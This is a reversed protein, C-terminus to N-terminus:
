RWGREYCKGIGWQVALGAAVALLATCLLGWLRSILDASGVAPLMLTGTLLGCLVPQCVTILAAERERGGFRRGARKDALAGWTGILGCLLICVVAVGQVPYSVRGGAGQGANATEAGERSAGNLIQRQFTFTSGDTCKEQLAEVAAQRLGEEGLEEKVAAFSEAGAIYGAFWDSSIEYFLREFLVENVVWTVTSDPSEYVTIAWSGDGQAIQNQLDEQLIYGCEAKGQMVNRKVEQPSECFFFRVLGASDSLLSRYATEETYVAAYVATQSQRELRVMFLSLLVTLLLCLWLSKQFLLRKALIVFLSQCKLPQLRSRASEATRTLGRGTRMNGCVAQGLGWNILWLLVTWASLVAATRFFAERNGTFLLTFTEKIYTSPFFLAIRGVAQPLLAAPLFCGSVYGMFMASLGIPLLAMRRSGALLCICQFWGALCCLSLFLLLLGQLSFVMPLQQRVAPILWLMGPLLLLMVLLGVAVLLRGGLQAAPSIGARKALMVQEMPSRWLYSVLFMGALLLYVTFLASAYYVAPGASGTASLTKIQFYQERNMALRLNFRDIDEYMEQLAQQGCAYTQTLAHTAYIEAQATQLLGVAADALEEFLLGLPEVQGSLYLSAPANSGTLIEEVVNEPLVLLATLEGEALLRKGESESVRLLSCWDKVAEMNEVYSVALDTLRDEEAVYGIQIKEGTGKHSIWQLACFAIM